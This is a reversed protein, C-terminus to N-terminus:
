YCMHRVNSWTPNLTMKPDNLTSTKSHGTDQFRGLWLTLLVSIHSGPVSTICLQPSRQPNLSMQLDNPATTEVDGTYMNGATSCLPTFISFWPYYNHMHPTYKVKYPEINNHTMRHVKEFQGTVRFRSTM